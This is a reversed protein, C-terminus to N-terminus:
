DLKKQFIKIILWGSLVGIVAGALIDSPWHLGVFVRSISILFSAILFLIGAKKNYVYVVTSIAFYFSAHGSPFSPSNIHNLLVNINNEIFPRPVPFLFRILEVIGLRALIGAGLAQIVMQRYKNFDKLLSLILIAVLIYGLYKAFFISLSDLWFYQGVFQNIKEFLFYDFIIM